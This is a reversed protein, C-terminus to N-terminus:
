KKVKGIGWSIGMQSLAGGLLVLFLAPVEEGICSLFVIGTCSCCAIYPIVVAKALAELDKM